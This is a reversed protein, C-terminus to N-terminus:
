RAERGAFGTPLPVVRLTTTSPYFAGLGATGSLVESRAAAVGGGHKAPDGEGDAIPLCIM